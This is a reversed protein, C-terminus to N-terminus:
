LSIGPEKYVVKGRTITMLPNLHLIDKQPIKFPDEELIVLDGAKGLELTGGKRESGVAYWGNITFIKLAEKLTIREEENPHNIASFIGLFPDIPTVFSDSGGAVTLGKDLIRRFPNTLKHREGLRKQYMKGEGGWLYEFTPQMSLTVGLKAALNIHEETPLEFHEIRHRLHHYPFKKYALSYAKLAEDIAHDGIAHLAMQLNMSHAEVVFGQLRKPDFYLVGRSDSDSYPEKLAATHSSFSGDVLLCGGIRRLGLEVVHRINTTQYYLTTRIPLNKQIKLFADISAPPSTFGGELAHVFTVGKKLISKSFEKLLVSIENVSYENYFKSIAQSYEERMLLNSNTHSTDKGITKLGKSNTIASHGDRRTILVPKMPSAEDIEELTPLVEGFRSPDMGWGLVVKCNSDKATERVKILIEQPSNASLLSIEQSKLASMVLHVHSDVFGPFVVKGKIDIFDGGEGVLKASLSDGLFVITGKEIVIAQVPEHSSIPYIVGNLLTLKQKNNFSM